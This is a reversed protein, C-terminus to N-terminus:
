LTPLDDSKEKQKMRWKRCAARRIEKQEETLECYPKRKRRPTQRQIAESVEPRKATRKYIVQKSKVPKPTTRTKIVKGPIYEQCPVGTPTPRREGTIELYNCADYGDLRIRYQCKACQKREYETKQGVPKINKPKKKTKVM